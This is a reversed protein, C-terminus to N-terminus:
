TSPCTGWVPLNSPTDAFPANTAFSSPEAIDEVCWNSIDLSTLSSCSVFMNTMYTVSSTVFSSLDLSTLAQCYSFMFSMNTVNSTDFSSLDLSTLASCQQFMWPMDTVNSTDFNSVDLSALLTCKGFMRGMDTVSSTDFSSLDLSSLDLSSLSNCEYFMYYMNTVNSTDWASLDLSTINQKNNFLSSMDTIASVDWTSIDGYTATASTSDADWADVATQLDSKTSFVHGDGIPGQPGSDLTVSPSPTPSPVDPCTGWVPLKSQTDGFLTWNAFYPPASPINEVCWNSLDLDLVYCNNFMAQMRNNGHQDINVNGVNWEEVGTLTELLPCSTFTEMMNSVESVDWNSLDLSTLKKCNYFLGSISNVSNQVLNEYGILTHLSECENFMGNMSTVLPLSLGTIDLTELGSCNYFLSYCQEVNEVNWGVVNLSTLNPCNSFMQSIDTKNSMDWNSLDLSTFNWNAKNWGNFLDSVDAIASVNWTSIDGYTSEASISDSAWEDVATQLDAKTEFVFGDGTPGQPGQLDIFDFLKWPLSYYHKGNITQVLPLTFDILENDANLEVPRLEITVDFITEEDSILFLSRVPPNLEDGLTYEILEGDDYLYTAM